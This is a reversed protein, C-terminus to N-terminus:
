FMQVTFKQVVELRYDAFVSSARHFGRVDAIVVTGPPGVITVKELESNEQGSRDRLMHPPCIGASGIDSESFHAYDIDRRWPRDRHSRKWYVMPASAPTVESLLTFIKIQSMWSDMHPVTTDDHKGWDPKYDLYTNVARIPLGLYQPVLSRLYRDEVILKAAPVITEIDRLRYIGDSDYIVSSWAPDPNGQRVREAYELCTAHIPAIADAAFHAPLVVVGNDLLDNLIPDGTRPRNMPHSAFYRKAKGDFVRRSKRLRQVTPNEVLKRYGPRLQNKLAALANM